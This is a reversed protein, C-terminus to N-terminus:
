NVENIFRGMQRCLPEFEFEEDSFLIEGGEVPVFFTANLNNPNLVYYRKGCDTITKRCSFGEARPIFVTLYAMAEDKTCSRNIFTEDAFAVEEQTDLGNVTNKEEKGKDIGVNYEHRSDNEKQPVTKTLIITAIIGGTALIVTAIFIAALLYMTKPKFQIFSMSNQGTKSTATTSEGEDSAEEINKDSVLEYIRPADDDDDVAPIMARQELYAVFQEGVKTQFSIRGNDVRKLVSEAKEPESFDYNAKLKSIFDLEELAKEYEERTCFTFDGVKYKEDM